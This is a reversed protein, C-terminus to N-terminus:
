GDCQPIYSSPIRFLTCLRLGKSFPPDESQQTPLEGITSIQATSYTWIAHQPVLKAEHTQRTATNIGSFNQKLSLNVKVWSLANNETLGNVMPEKSKNYRDADDYWQNNWKFKAMKM